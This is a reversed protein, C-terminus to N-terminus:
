KILVFIESTDALAYIDQMKSIDTPINFEPISLEILDASSLELDTLTMTTKGGGAIVETLTQEDIKVDYCEEREMGFLAGIGAVPVKTCQQTTEAEFKINGKRFLTAKIDYVGDALKITKEGPYILSTTYADSSFTLFVREDASLETELNLDVNLEHYPYLTIDAIGPENTSIEQKADAFGEATAIIYGNVCQPFKESLVADNGEINTEGIDCVTNFCKFSIKAEVPNNMTDHTYVSVEEVKRVDQCLETNLPEFTDEINAERPKNKDILVITSFQFFNEGDILQVIVPYAISYVFHYPVYCAGLISMGEQLGVPKAIMIGNEEPSIELKTPFSPSYFFVIQKDVDKGIDYVFYKDEKDALAYYNGKLKVTRINSELASKIKSSVNDTYWIKPSCTLETGTTPANLTLTDITYDELFFSSQEKEFIRKALTYLSGLNTKATVSHRSITKVIDGYQITIPYSVDVSVGSDSIKAKAKASDGTIVSYDALQSFDCENIHNAVYNGLEKEMDNISPVQTKQINNGSVYFWYPIVSGYFNIQSGSPMYASGAEYQPSQIYGGQEGLVMAGEVALNSICGLFYDEVPKLQTPVPMAYKVYFILSVGAVILIALIVFLSVQARKVGLFKNM